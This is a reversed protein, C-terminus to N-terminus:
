RGGRLQGEAMRLADLASQNAPDIALARKFDAAAAAPDKLALHVGGRYIYSMGYRPNLTIATDLAELAEANKGQKGYVMGIQSYVHASPRLAAAQRLRTLAEEPQNLCDYALAWDVLLDQRPKQNQAAIAYHAAAKDCARELFYAHALQFHARANRPSKEVTDEWLTIASGWVSSRRYTGAAAALLVSGLAVLATTRAPKWRRLFELMIFLLGIIPLYLRREAVPDKIPIFSSTPALLLLFILFGFAALPYRRRFYFAAGAGAVIAVLGLWAGHELLTHSIAFDYDASQGVPLLFLRVYVWIARCQTFFYEYWTFQKVSFGASTAGRLTRMVFLGALAGAVVMPAYLRWNRKIGALSFGPNWFYDTLVLLAPLTATHEKTGAAAGFLLLVAAARAWSIATSRRYLFAAYAGFFFLGSLDESRSAIYAVSEVQVPHILFLGGAFGALIDLRETEVGAWALIKRVILFILAANAAHLLVNLAHYSFTEGGSLEFNVWYSFMLLPRVGILWPRLEHTAFRPNRFPLFNDDFVFPGYLAPQYAEFVAALALIAALAYPWYLPGAQSAPSSVAPQTTKRSEKKKSKM